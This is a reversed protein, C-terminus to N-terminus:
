RGVEGGRARRWDFRYATTAHLGQYLATSAVTASRTTWRSAQAIQAGPNRGGPVAM